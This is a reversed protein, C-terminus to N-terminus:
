EQTQHCLKSLQPRIGSSGSSWASPWAPAWASVAPQYPGSTRRCQLTWRLGSGRSSPTHSAMSYDFRSRIRWHNLERVLASGCRGKRAPLQPPRRTQKRGSPRRVPDLVAPFQGSKPAKCACAELYMSPEVEVTTMLAASPSQVSPTDGVRCTFAM